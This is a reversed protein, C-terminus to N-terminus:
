ATNEWSFKFIDRNIFTKIGLHNPNLQLVIDLKSNDFLYIEDVFQIPVNNQVLAESCMIRKGEVEGLEYYKWSGKKILTWNIKNLDEVNKFFKTSSNVANGNSFFVKDSLLIHPNVKLLILEANNRKNSLALLMPNKHNFYLPAFDHINGGLTEEFRNRKANASKNSIDVNRLNYKDAINHSVIGLELISKLNDIHTIYFLGGFPFNNLQQENLKQRKSIVDRHETFDIFKKVSLKTSNLLVNFKDLQESNLSIFYNDIKSFLHKYFKLLNSLIYNYFGDLLLIEESRLKLTLHFYSNGKNHLGPNTLYLSKYIKKIKFSIHNSITSIQFIKNYYVELVDIEKFNEDEGVSKLFQEVNSLESYLSKLISIYINQNYVELFKEGNNM